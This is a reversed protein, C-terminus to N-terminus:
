GMPGHLAASALTCPAMLCHASVCVTVTSRSDHAAILDVAALGRLIQQSIFPAPM